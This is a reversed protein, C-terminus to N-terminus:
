NSGKGELRKFILANQKNGKRQILIGVGVRNALRYGLMKTLTQCISANGKVAFVRFRSERLRAGGCQWGDDTGADQPPAPFTRIPPSPPSAARCGPVELLRGGWSSCWWWPRPRRAGGDRDILLLVEVM